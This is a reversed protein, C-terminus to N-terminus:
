HVDFSRAMRFYFDARQQDVAFSEPAHEELPEGIRAEVVWNRAYRYIVGLSACSLTSALDPSRSAFRSTGREVALAVKLDHRDEDYVPIEYRAQAFTGRDGVAVGPLWASLRSLGGLVWQESQPLPDTTYQAEWSLSARGYGFPDASVGGGYGAVHFGGRAGTGEFRDSVSQRLQADVFAQPRGASREAYWRGGGGIHVATYAESASAATGVQEIDYRNYTAGAAASWRWTPSIFLYREAQTGIGLSSAKFRPDADPVGFAINEAGIGDYAYDAYSGVLKVLGYRTVVDTFASFGDYKPHGRSGGLEPLVRDYSLGLRASSEATWTADVGGLWRGVFRNGENGM